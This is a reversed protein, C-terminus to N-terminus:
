ESRDLLGTWVGRRNRLCTLFLSFICPSSSSPPLSSLGYGVIVVAHNLDTCCDPSNFVGGGYYIFFPDTGCIGVSVPGVKNVYEKLFFENSSPLVVFKRITAVPIPVFSHSQASWDPSSHSSLSSSFLHRSSSIDNRYCKQEYGRYPLSLATTIGHDM